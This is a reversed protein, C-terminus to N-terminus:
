RREKLTAFFGWPETGLVRWLDEEARGEVGIADSFVEVIQEGSSPQHRSCILNGSGSAEVGFPLLGRDLLWSRESDDGLREIAHQISVWDFLCPWDGHPDWEFCAGVVPCEGMLDLHARWGFRQRAEAIHNRATPEGGASRFAALVQIRDAM